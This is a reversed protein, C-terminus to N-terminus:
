RHRRAYARRAAGGGDVTVRPGAAPPPMQRQRLAVGDLLGRALMRGTAPLATLTKGTVAYVYRRAPDSILMDAGFASARVRTCPWGPSASGARLACADATRERALARAGRGAQLVVVGEPGGALVRGGVALLSSSFAPVCQGTWSATTDPDPCTTGPALTLTGTARDREIAIVMDGAIAAYVRTGDPAVALARIAARWEPARGTCPVVSQAAIGPQGSLCVALSPVRERLLGTRPDRLFVAIVGRRASSAARTWGYLQRGDRTAM